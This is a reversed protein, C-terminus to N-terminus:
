AVVGALYPTVRAVLDEPHTAALKQWEAALRSGVLPVGEVWGPLAPVPNTALSRTWAVILDARDVITVIAVILPAAIVALMGLTMVAVALSRRGWLRAQVVRLAPWTAVVIMTAWIVAPLFPRLVWFSAGILGGIAVVALLIRTLDWAPLTARTVGPEGADSV